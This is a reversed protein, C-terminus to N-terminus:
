AMENSLLSFGQKEVSACLNNETEVGESNDFNM